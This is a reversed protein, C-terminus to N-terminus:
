GPVLEILASFNHTLNSILENYEEKRYLVCAAKAALSSEKQRRNALKHTWEHLSKLSKKEMGKEVWTEQNKSQVEQLRTQILELLRKISDLDKDPNALVARLNAEAKSEDEEQSIGAADGWRSFRLMVIALKVICEEYDESFRRGIRILKFCDICFSFSAVLALGFSAPEM